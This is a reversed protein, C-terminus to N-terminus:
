EPGNPFSKKTSDLLKKCVKKSSRIINEMVRWPLEVLPQLVPSLAFGYFLFGASLCAAEWLGLRGGSSGMANGFAAAAALLAFLLDLLAGPGPGMRRRPPRLLDYLLGLGMGLLLAPLLSLLQARLSTEVEPLSGPCCDAGPPSTM